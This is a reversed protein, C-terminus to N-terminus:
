ELGVRPSQKVLRGRACKNASIELSVLFAFLPPPSSPFLTKREYSVCAHAIQKDGKLQKNQIETETERERSRRTSRSVQQESRM